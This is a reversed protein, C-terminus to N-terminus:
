VRDVGRALTWGEETRVAVGEEVLRERYRRVTTRPWGLEAALRAVAVPGGHASLARVVAVARGELTWEVAVSRKV